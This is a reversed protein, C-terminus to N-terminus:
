AIWGSTAHITQQTTINTLIETGWIDFVAVRWRYPGHEGISDLPVNVTHGTPLGAYGVGSLEVDLVPSDVEPDFGDTESLWVKLRILDHEVPVEWQLDYELDTVDSTEAALTSTPFLPPGTIPNSFEQATAEGDGDSFIPTVTVEMERNVNGDTVADNIDYTFTRDADV